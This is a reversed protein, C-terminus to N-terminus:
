AAHQRRISACSPLSAVGFWFQEVAAVIEELREFQMPKIICSNAGLRYCDDIDAVSNAGTMVIVPITQLQPDAKIATLVAHGDMRPLNLDLLILEPRPWQIHPAERRLKCLAEEGDSVISLNVPSQAADFAEQALMADGFSDEVLM